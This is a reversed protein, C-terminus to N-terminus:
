SSSFIFYNYSYSDKQATRKSSKYAAQVHNYAAHQAKRQESQRYEKCIIRTDEGGVQSLSRLLFPYNNM